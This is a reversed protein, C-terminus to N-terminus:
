SAPNAPRRGSPGSMTLQPPSGEGLGGGRSGSPAPRTSKVALYLGLFIGAAAVWFRPAPREHLFLMSLTTAIPPQLYIFLAVMSSDVHRLAYYNLFYALVTAFVVAYAALLWFRAPLATFDVQLLPGAGVALIGGAGLLLLWATAALPDNRRLFDRSLVLFLSFSAGNALTLLDGRVLQDELRFREVGLLLLVSAFSVVLSAVRGVTPRERGLLLAFLLTLVPILSNIVASHSPTTRALGEVFLVQNLVVGFLAYLGLRGLDRRNAPHRRRFLLNWGMLLAAAGTIRVCAWARPPVMQVLLKAVFYHVGFFVQVALLAAGVRPQLM